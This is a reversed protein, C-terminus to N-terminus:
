VKKISRIKLGSGSSSDGVAKVSVGEKRLDQPSQRVSMNINKSNKTMNDVTSTMGQNFFFEAFKDINMAVSMARHYGQADNMLGSDKDMFKDVFNNVDSQKSKLEDKDGPKFTFQKEGVNFEFGKFEDSFVEDTKNIFYDYRKKQAEKATTSQEVYSKYSNFNELEEGSLGAGSSELPINYKDKQENLFKKAKALERKKTREIKKIDAPEDIDADYGFKDEMLDKIDESDLGEETHAYYQSLLKDSDMEDFNQQLKVFDQISRGTEKKYDFYASVDEPLEENAQKEEFLQDVSEIDKNYKNKLYSIIDADNLEPAPAKDDIVKKEDVIVKDDKDKGEIIPEFKDEHDKLLKEEIEVTSKEVVDIEKVTFKEKTNNEM